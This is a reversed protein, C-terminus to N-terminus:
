KNGGTKSLDFSDYAQDRAKLKGLIGKSQLKSVNTKYQEMMVRKLNQSKALNEQAKKAAELAKDAELRQKTREIINSDNSKSPELMEKKGLNSQLEAEDVKAQAETTQKAMTENFITDSAKIAEDTDAAISQGLTRDIAYAGVALTDAIKSTNIPM